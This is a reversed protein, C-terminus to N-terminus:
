GLAPYPFPAAVIAYGVIITPPEGHVRLRQVIQQRHRDALRV